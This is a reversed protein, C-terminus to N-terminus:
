PTKQNPTTPRRGRAATYPTARGGKPQRELQMQTGAVVTNILNANMGITTTAGPAFWGTPGRHPAATQVLPDHRTM